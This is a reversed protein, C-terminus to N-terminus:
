APGLNACRPPRLSRFLRAPARRPRAPAPAPKRRRGSYLPSKGPPPTISPAHRLSQKQQVAHRQHVPRVKRKDGPRHQRRLPHIRRRKVPEGLRQQVDQAAPLRRVQPHRKVRRRRRVPMPLKGRVLRGPLLHRLIQAGRQRVHPPHELREINGRQGQIAELRIIEDARQHPARLPLAELGVHDRRVLIEPLQDARVIKDELRRPAPVPRLNQPQRLDLGPPAHRAGLLHHLHQRQHAVRGVVNRAHGPYALLGRHLEDRLIARQLVQQGM